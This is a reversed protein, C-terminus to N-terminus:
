ENDSSRCLSWEAGSDILVTCVEVCNVGGRPPIKAPRTICCSIILRISINYTARRANISYSRHDYPSRNRQPRNSSTWTPIPVTRVHGKTGQQERDLGVLLLNRSLNEPHHSAALCMSTAYSPLVTAFHRRKVSDKRLRADVNELPFSQQITKKQAGIDGKGGALACSEPERAQGGNRPRSGIISHLVYGKKRAHPRSRTGTPGNLRRERARCVWREVKGGDSFPSRMGGRNRTCTTRYTVASNTYQIYVTRTAATMEPFDLRSYFFSSFFSFILFICYNGNAGYASIM